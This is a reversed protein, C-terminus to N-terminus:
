NHDIAIFIHMLVAYANHLTSVGLWLAYYEAYRDGFPWVYRSRPWVRGLDGLGSACMHIVLVTTKETM